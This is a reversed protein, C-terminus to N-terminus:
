LYRKPFRGHKGDCLLSLCMVRTYCAGQVAHIVATEGPCVLDLPIQNVLKNM